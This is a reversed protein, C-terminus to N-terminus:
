KIFKEFTDVSLEKFVAERDKVDKQSMYKSRDERVAQKLKMEYNKQLIDIGDFIPPIYFDYQSYMEEAAKLLTKTNKDEIKEIDSSIINDFAAKTVPLYGTGTIFRINNEPSTFWKLFIGAAYEKAETSKTVLMGSGRQVAVKKGGEFVPYPLMMLEVEETTNDPYTVIPAFFAVGATSGISCVIEGTKALDSAYGDFIAYHGKVAPEYYYSWIKKFSDAKYDLQKGKVFESGLQRSGLQTLNFLSDAHFFTKGDNQIDPTKDDTWKYYAEAARAIGEFSRLSDYSIGTDRSFKDFITKNLFLVETSKAFPFLYLTEGGLRGEEVFSSIYASLEDKTFQEEMNALLGNEELIIATKPNATAIDPLKPAGPDGNAAMTLKEHLAASATISTVNLIIGKKAGVTENFEDVMRDMTEKMQGGFNHWMTLTVPNKASLGHNKECGSLIVMLLILAISISRKM